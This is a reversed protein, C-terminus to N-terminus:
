RIKYYIQVGGNSYINGENSWVDAPYPDTLVKWPRNIDLGYGREISTGILFILRGSALYESERFIFYSYNKISKIDFVKISYSCQKGLYAEIYEYVPYDSFTTSNANMHMEYFSISGIEKQNFYLRDDQGLINNFEESGNSKASLISSLFFYAVILVFLMAMLSKHHSFRKIYIILLYYLGVSTSFIVFISAFIPGRYGMVPTFLNAINPLYFPLFILSMVSFVQCLKGHKRDLLSFVTILTIFVLIIYDLNRMLTMWMPLITPVSDSIMTVPERTSFVTRMTSNFFQNAIYIWYSVFSIIYLSLYYISFPKQYQVFKEILFLLFFICFFVFCTLTHMFVLPVILFIALSNSKWKDKGNIILYLIILCIIYATTGTVICMTISITERILSFLLAAILSINLNGTVYFVILQVLIISLSFILSGLIFYTIKPNMATLMDAISNFIHFLPFYRYSDMAGTVYGKELITSIYRLHTFIDTYSFYFPCKLTFGLSINLLLLVMQSLLVYRYMKQNTNIYIAEFLVIGAMIAVLFFYVVPRELFYILFCISLIYISIFILIHNISLRKALYSRSKPLHDLPLNHRSISLLSALVIPIGYTLFGKMALDRSGKLTFVLSSVLLLLICFWPLIKVLQTPINDIRTM